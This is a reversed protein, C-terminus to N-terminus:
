TGSVLLEQEFQPNQNPSQVACSPECDLSSEIPWRCQIPLSRSRACSSDRGKLCMAHQHIRFAEVAGMM